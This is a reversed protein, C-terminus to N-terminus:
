HLPPVVSSLGKSASRSRIAASTLAILVPAASSLWSSTSSTGASVLQSRGSVDQGLTSYLSAAERVGEECLRLPRVTHSQSKYVNPSGRSVIPTALTRM